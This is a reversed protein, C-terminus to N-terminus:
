RSLAVSEAIQALQGADVAGEELEIAIYKLLGIDYSLIGDNYETTGDAGGTQYRVRCIATEANGTTRVPTYSDDWSVVSGLMIDHYVSVRFNEGEAEPHYAFDNTAITGALRGDAYLNVPAFLMAAFAPEGPQVPAATWGQPLTLSATFRGGAADTYTIM